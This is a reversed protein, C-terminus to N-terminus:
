QLHRRQNPGHVLKNDIDIAESILNDLSDIDGRRALENQIQNNLNVKFQSILAADNWKVVQAYM